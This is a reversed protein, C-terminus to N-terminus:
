GDALLDVARGDDGLPVGGGDDLRAPAGLYRREPAEDQPTNRRAFAHTATPAATSGTISSTKLLRKMDIASCIPKLRALM